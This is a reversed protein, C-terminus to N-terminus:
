PISDRNRGHACEWRAGIMYSAAVSRSILAMWFELQSVVLQSM